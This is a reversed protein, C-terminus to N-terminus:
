FSLSGLLFLLEDESIVYEDIQIQITFDDFM